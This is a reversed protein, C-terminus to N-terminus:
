PALEDALARLSLATMLMAWLPRGLDRQGSRHADLLGRVAAPHWLDAAPGQLGLLTDALLAYLPGRLWADVPLNMGAKPRRRTSRPVLDAVAARLVRKTAAGRLHMSAPLEAARETLDLDLYPLRAEVGHALSCLDTKTLIDDPLYATQDFHLAADLGRHIPADPTLVPPALAPVPTDRLLRAADAEPLFRRFALHAALPPLHAAAAFQRLRLDLGHPAGRRPLAAALAQLSALSPGGLPGQLLPRLREAWQWAQHTRYGAFVEDGGDGTLLVKLGADHAAAHLASAVLASSDAFPRGLQAALRLVAAAEPRVTACVWPVGLAAAARRAHPAEDHKAHAVAATVATPAAGQQRALALIATSDLGGSLAVGVPVDAVLRRAVARSLDKRIDHAAAALSPTAVPPRASALRLPPPRQLRLGGERDWTAQAGPPLAAIGSLGTRGGSIWTTSVLEALAGRDIGLPVRGSALIARPESAFVVGGDAMRAVHLPAIGYRDRALHLRRTLLDFLALAFQGEVRGLVQPGQDLCLAAVVEADGRGHFRHGRAELRARHVELDYLEGHWVLALLGPLVVPQAAEPGPAVIALRRHLLQASVQEDRHAWTGAGDPGRRALSADMRRLAEADLPAGPGVAGALGCM